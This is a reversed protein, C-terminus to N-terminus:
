ESRVGPGMREAAARSLRDNIAEGLGTKPVPAVAISAAGTADLARLDSFLNAAAEELNSKESLTRVAVADRAIQDPIPGFGLYAKGPAIDLAELRVIARPAYHSKLMGPGAPKAASDGPPGALPRGLVKEIDERALGGPRLLRAEDDILAVITSEVGIRTPGADLIVDVREGLDENVAEATTPSIGGSRNASPAALPRGAERSLRQMIPSDPVRLAISDLGATALDCVASGPRRPVVLTLPGPWFADALFNAREDFLGYERAAAADSVHSILPNFRPRGKATYIGTCAQPNTADAALGYVTETPAAVLGGDLIAAVAERFGTSASLNPDQPNIRRVTM